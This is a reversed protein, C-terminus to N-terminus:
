GNKIPIQRPKALEKKPLTVELVGNEISASIREVDVDPGITFVRRFDAPWARDAPVARTAELRLEGEHYQVAIDDKSVGPVDAFVLYADKGELVDVPASAWARPTTVDSRNATQLNTETM